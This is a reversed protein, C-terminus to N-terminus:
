ERPRDGLIGVGFASANVCNDSNGFMMLQTKRGKRSLPPGNVGIDFGMRTGTQLPNGIDSWPIRLLVWYNEDDICGADLSVNSLASSASSAHWLAPTQGREIVPRVVLQHVDTDYNVTSLGTEKSRFDFFFELSSGLVGPWEVPLGPHADHVKVYVSLGEEDYGVNAEASLEDPGTWTERELLGDPGPPRGVVVQDRRNLVLPGGPPQWAQLGALSSDDPLRPISFVPSVAITVASLCPTGDPLSIRLAQAHRGRAVSPEVEYEFLLAAHEGPKLTFDRETPVIRWGPEKEFAIRGQWPESFVNKITLDIQRRGASGAEVDVSEIPSALVERFPKKAHIYSPEEELVITHTYVGRHARGELASSHGVMSIHELTPNESQVFLTSSEGTSWLAAVEGGAKKPFVGGQIGHQSIARGGTHVAPEMQAILVGLALTHRGPTRGDAKYAAVFWGFEVSGPESEPSSWMPHWGFITFYEAGTLFNVIVNQVYSAGGKRETMGYRPWTESCDRNLERLRAESIPRDIVERNAFKLGTESNIVSMNEKAGDMLSRVGRLKGLLDVDHTMGPAIYTHWSVGDMYKYGGLEFVERMWPVFDAVGSIGFVRVGPDVAKVEEYVARATEIYDEPKLCNYTIGNPENEIEYFAVKGKYQRAFARLFRRYREFDPVGGAVGWPYQKRRSEADYLKSRMWAHAPLGTMSVYVTHGAHFAALIKETRRWNWEEPPLDPDMGWKGDWLKLWPPGQVDAWHAYRHELHIPLADPWFGIPRMSDHLGFKETGPPENRLKIYMFHKRAEIPPATEGAAVAMHYVDSQMDFPFQVPVMAESRAPVTVTQEWTHQQERVESQLDFLITALREDPGTNILQVMPCDRKAPDLSIVYTDFGFLRATLLAEAKPSLRVKAAYGSEWDLSLGGDGAVQLEDVGWGNVRLSTPVFPAELNLEAVKNGSRYLNVSTQNWKLEVGSWGSPFPPVDASALEKEGKSYVIRVQRNKGLDARALTLSYTSDSLSFLRREEPNPDDRVDASLYGGQPFNIYPKLPYNGEESIPLCRGRSGGEQPPIAPVRPNLPGDPYVLIDDGTAPYALLAVLLLSLLSRLMMERSRWNIIISQQNNIQSTLVLSM